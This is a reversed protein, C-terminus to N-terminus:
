AVSFIFPFCPQTFEVTTISFLPVGVELRPFRFAKVTGRRREGRRAAPVGVVGMKLWWEISRREFVCDDIAGGKDVRRVGALDVGLSVMVLFGRGNRM